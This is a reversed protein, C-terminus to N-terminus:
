RTIANAVLGSVDVISSSGSITNTSIMSKIGARKMKQAAGDVTLAHTCAAYVNNCGSSKLFSAAKSISSGSSIMDDILIVDRDKVISAKSTTIRVDGTKRNRKKSLVLTDCGLKKAFALARVNAGADPSVVIRKKMRITTFYEALVPAAAINVIPIKFHRLGETSHIDVVIMATTGAAAFLRAIEKITIIEGAIFTRDQRAYGLYPIVAIVSRSVASAASIICLTRMFNSDVPPHTSQVIIVTSNKPIPRSLTVKTEGDTFTRIKCSIHPVHLRRAIRVSLDSTADGGIVVSSPSIRIKQPNKKM